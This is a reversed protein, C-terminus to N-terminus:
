QNNLDKAFTTDSVVRAAITYKSDTDSALYINLDRVDKVDYVYYYFKKAFKDSM